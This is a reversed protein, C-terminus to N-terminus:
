QRGSSEVNDEQSVATSANATDAEKVNTDKSQLKGAQSTEKRTRSQDIGWVAQAVDEIKAVFKDVNLGAVLALAYSGIESADSKTGSELVLLGAKLFLFSVGGCCTSVVPRILCWAAWHDSWTQRVCRNLYVARLCYLCGGVAGIVACMLGVRLDAWRGELHGLVMFLIIATAAALCGLL